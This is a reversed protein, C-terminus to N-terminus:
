LVEALLVEVAAVVAQEFGALEGPAGVVSLASDELLTGDPGVPVVRIAVSTSVAVSVEATTCVQGAVTVQPIQVRM